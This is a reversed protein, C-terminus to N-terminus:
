FYGTTLAVKSLTRSPTAWTKIVIFPRSALHAGLLVSTRGMLRLHAQQGGAKPYTCSEPFVDYPSYVVAGFDDVSTRGEVREPFFRLPVQSSM